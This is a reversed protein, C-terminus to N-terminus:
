IALERMRKELNTVLFFITPVLSVSIKTDRAWRKSNHKKTLNYYVVDTCSKERQKPCAWAVQGIENAAAAGNTGNGFDSSSCLM